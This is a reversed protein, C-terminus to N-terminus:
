RSSLPLSLLRLLTSISAGRGGAMAARRGYRGTALGAPHTRPGDRAVARAEPHGQGRRGGADGFSGM